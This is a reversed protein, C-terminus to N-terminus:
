ESVLRIEFLSPWWKGTVFLRDGEADYAIGNLVNPIMAGRAAGLLDSLDIMGTVAGTAPSIRAIHDTPWINAYIEGGIYELENLSRVTEEHDRVELTDTFAFTEPDVFFLRHTGDSLILREGDHTLGWGDVPYSLEDIPDFSAADYVFAIGASLTLQFLRDGLIAIGEGFYNSSLNRRQLVEGTELDVRRVSSYGNRGTGEYLQDNWYVLGQTFAEEDHPYTHVVEYSFWPTEPVAMSASLVEDGGDSIIGLVARYDGVALGYPNVTLLVEDPEGSSRGTDPHAVLWPVDLAIKWHLTGTGANRIVLSHEAAESGFALSDCLVSLVPSGEGTEPPCEIPADDFWCGAVAGLSIGLGVLRHVRIKM